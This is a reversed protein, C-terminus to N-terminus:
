GYYPCLLWQPRVQTPTLGLTDLARQLRGDWDEVQAQEALRAFDVPRTEGLEATIEMAALVHSACDPVCHTVIKVGVRAKAQCRRDFYGDARWDMETFGAAALLVAEVAETVGDDNLTPWTVALSGDEDVQKVAWGSDDGGLNYGYALKARASMGM